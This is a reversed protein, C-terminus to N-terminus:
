PVFETAAAAAAPLLTVIYVESATPTLSGATANVFTIGINGASSVRAGVIGLGAQATPKNVVVGMAAAAGTVAFLQEATTNAAVAAPSITIAVRLSLGTRIAKAETDLAALAARLAPNGISPQQYNFTAM